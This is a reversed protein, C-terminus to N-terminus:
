AVELVPLPQCVHYLFYLLTESPQSGYVVNKFVNNCSQVVDEANHTFYCVIQGMIQRSIEIDLCEQVNKARDRDVQM